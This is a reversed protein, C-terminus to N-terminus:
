SPDRRTPVIRVEKGTVGAYKIAKGLLLLEETGFKPAFADQHMIVFNAKTTRCAAAFEPLDREIEEILHRERDLENDAMRGLYSAAVGTVVASGGARCPLGSSSAITEVVVVTVQRSPLSNLSRTGIPRNIACELPHKRGACKM